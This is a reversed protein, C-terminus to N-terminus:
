EQLTLHAGLGTLVQAFDPFSERMIEAGRVEVPQGAALGLVALAMALRHDGHPDV